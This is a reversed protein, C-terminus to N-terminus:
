RKVKRTGRKGTYPNANGKASYNDRQTHNPATRYHQQRYHGKHTVTSRVHVPHSALAVAPVLLVLLAFVKVGYVEFPVVM